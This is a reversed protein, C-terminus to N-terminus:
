RGSLSKAMEERGRAGRDMTAKLAQIAENDKDHRSKMDMLAIQDTMNKSHQQESYNITDQMTVAGDKGTGEIPM